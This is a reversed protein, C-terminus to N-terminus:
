NHCKRPPKVLATKGLHIILPTGPVTRDGDRFTGGGAFGDVFDLKFEDRALNAGLRDFYSRLYSRLVSLKAKSHEEILPPPENIRWRFSM